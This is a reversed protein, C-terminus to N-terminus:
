LKMPVEVSESMLPNHHNTLKLRGAERSFWDGRRGPALILYDCLFQNGDATEVGKVVSGEALVGTVM